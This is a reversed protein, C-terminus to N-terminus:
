PTMELMQLADEFTEVSPENAFLTEIQLLTYNMELLAQKCQDKPLFLIAEQEQAIIGGVTGMDNHAEPAGEELEGAPTDRNDKLIAAGANM